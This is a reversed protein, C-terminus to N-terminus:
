DFKSKFTPKTTKRVVWNLVTNVPRKLNEAEQTSEPFKNKM